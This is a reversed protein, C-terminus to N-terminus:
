GARRRVCSWPRMASWTPRWPPAPTRGTRTTGSEGADGEKGPGSIAGDSRLKPFLPAHEYGPHDGSASCSPDGPSDATGATPSAWGGCLWALLPAAFVYATPKTLLALGLSAGAWAADAWTPAAHLALLYYTVCILWFATAYSNTANSAQLIGMPLTACFVAAFLQTHPAAGLRATILSAAVVSGFLSFWQILNVLRDDGKLGPPQPRRIRGM